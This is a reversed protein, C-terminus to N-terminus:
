PTAPPQLCSESGSDTYSDGAAPVFEWEYSDPRLTMKLVGYSSDDSAESNPELSGVSTHNRGGSGVVFERIGTPDANGFADQLGFREYHHDHGVLVVDAGYEQLAVWWDQSWAINGIAGSSFLPHHWYALICASPNSALESRLWLEQPSGASCGGVKSCNSNLVVVFWNGEQYSYYGKTPDGAAAGFYEYYGAASPDSAAAPDNYEHNGVSPSTINKFRGWSLDYSQNFQDITGDEYQNDGLLLVRDPDMALVLDSTALQRCNNSTGAGGNFSSSTPDCAIDGAAAIVRTTPDLVNVMTTAAASDAGAVVTLRAPKFGETPYNHTQSTTGVCDPITYIVSGDGEVDLTCSMPDGTAHSLSWNFTVQAGPAPREPDHTFSNVTINQSYEVHLLPAAGPAGNYSEATRRGAGTVIISLANGDQWGPRDVIEQIVASIDETRQDQGAQGVTNWNPPSWSVAATTTPRSSIDNTTSSFTVANDADEGGITLSSTGTSVEDVTFQIWAQSITAMPPITVDAFRMGVTQVSSDVVLELDTSSRSVSGASSEEADDNGASVRQEFTTTTGPPPTVTLAVTAEDTGNTGTATLRATTPGATTYQHIQQTVAQCDTHSYDATGDDDIDLECAIPGGGGIDDSISWTFTVDTGIAPNTPAATFSDIAVGAPGTEYEVHLKPAASSVGNYSEATREGTGTIIIALPNGSAWGGQGVIEEIILSLDPTQQLSGITTWPPPSWPTSADTTPRTSINNNTAAFTPANTSKQGRITLTTTGTNAEDVTFEVYANTVNAGPPVDVAAFRMGVVQDGTADFVLELDSSTLSVNGSVREEADDSGASVRVDVSTTAAVALDPQVLTTLM